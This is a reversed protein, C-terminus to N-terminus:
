GGRSGWGPARVSISRHAVEKVALRRDASTNSVPGPSRRAGPKQGSAVDLWREGERPPMERLLHEHAITLHESVREYYPGNGWLLSQKSKLEDFAM